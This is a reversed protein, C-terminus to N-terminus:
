GVRVRVKGTLLTQMLGQKLKELQEKTQKEKEIKEDVSSLIEAIKHQESPPPLPIKFDTLDKKSVATFTSGQGVLRKVSHRMLYYIYDESNGKEVRLAALGRGICCKRDAINLEGVPARVSVLIDNAESIKAPRSCFMRVRPHMDGFDLNGQFFSLGDGVENYTTSPPSQGMIVKCVSGLPSIRWEKPIRHGLEESVKFEKHGIGKTLIEQMLGKKLKETKQIIENTKQIAEDVASLISAIKQQEEIKKPLPINLSKLTPLNINKLTSGAQGSTIYTWYFKSQFFYHIFKPYLDSKLKIKILYSGFIINEQDRDVLVSMGTTGARAVILDGKRLFYKTLDNRKETIECLPLADWSTCYNKIDTTRLMRLSTEKETAKATIGYYIGKDKVIEGLRVADWETPIAGVETQKLRSEKYFEIKETM